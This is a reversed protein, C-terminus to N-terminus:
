FAAAASRQSATVQSVWDGKIMTVNPVRPPGKEGSQIRAHLQSVAAAGIEAPRQDVGGIPTPGPRDTVAFKVNTLLRRGLHKTIREVDSETGAIIADPKQRNFWSRLGARFDGDYILPRVLETGGMTNQWMVAATFRHDVVSDTRANTILGIRRCGLRALQKCMLITNGFQDPVVRHFDPAIVGYTAAVIAFDDWNLLDNLAVAELMPLLLVGEVGRSRLVRQLSTNRLTSAEVRFVTFGYGLATAAREAGERLVQPYHPENKESAITTVAAIISKFKPKHKLRLHHMLKAVEPDPRYGLKEAIRRVKQRTKASILPHNRLAMSVTAHTVGAEIAISRM